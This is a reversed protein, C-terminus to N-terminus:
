KDHDPIISNHPLHGKFIWSSLYERHVRLTIFTLTSTIITVVNELQFEDFISRM